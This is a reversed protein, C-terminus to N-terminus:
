RAAKIESRMKNLFRGQRVLQAAEDYQEQALTNAITTKLVDQEQQIEAELADLSAQNKDMRADELAERWELQQMLFAPAFQTHEPADADINHLSVIYSARDIDSKLIRYADNITSSLMMAQRQEFGSAAAFKDPHYIAALKRYNDTLSTEDIIFQVPLNFLAFYDTQM